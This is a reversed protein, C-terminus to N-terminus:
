TQEWAQNTMYAVKCRANTGTLSSTPTPLPHSRNLAGTSKFIIYVAVSPLPGGKVIIDASSAAIGSHTEWTTQVESATDDWNLVLTDTDVTPTDDTWIPVSFSVTGGTVAGEYRIEHVTLCDCAGGGLASCMVLTNTSDVALVKFGTGTTDVYTESAVPGVTDGAAPASGSYRVWFPKGLISRCKGYGDDAVQRPESVFLAEDGDAAPEAAILYEGTNGSSASKFISRAPLAAGIENKFDIPFDPVGDRQSM